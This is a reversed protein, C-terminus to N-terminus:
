PVGKGRWQSRNVGFEESLLNQLKKLFENRIGTLRAIEKDLKEMEHRAREVPNWYMLTRKQHCENCVAIRGIKSRKEKYFGSLPFELGCKNCRRLKTKM